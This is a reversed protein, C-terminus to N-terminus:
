QPEVREFSANWSQGNSVVKVKGVDRTSYIAESYDNRYDYIYRRNERIASRFLHPVAEGSHPEIREVVEERPHGYSNYGASVVAIEPSLTNAWRVSTSTALSGHHGIKLLDIDLFEPLYLELIENETAHTTDGTFIAEFENFRIMLVISAANKTSSGPFINTAM